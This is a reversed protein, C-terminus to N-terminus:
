LTAWIAKCTDNDRWEDHHQMFGMCWRVGQIYEELLPGVILIFVMEVCM